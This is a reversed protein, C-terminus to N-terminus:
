RFIISLVNIQVLCNAILSPQTAPQRRNIFFPDSMFIDGYAGDRM